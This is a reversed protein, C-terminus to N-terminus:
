RPVDPSPSDFRQRISPLQLYILFFVSLTCIGLGLKTSWTERFLLYVIGLLFYLIMSVSALKRGRNKLRCLDIGATYSIWALTPFGVVAFLLALCLWLFGLPNEAISPPENRTYINFFFIAMLVVVGPSAAFAILSLVTVGIPRSRSDIPM